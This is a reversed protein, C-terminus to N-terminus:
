YIKVQAQVAHVRDKRDASCQRDVLCQALQNTGWRHAARARVAAAEVRAERECWVQRWGARKKHKSFISLM